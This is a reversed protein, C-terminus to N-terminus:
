EQRGIARAAIARLWMRRILASGPYITRWYAAFRRRADDSSAWVRTTTTVLSGGRGDPRVLFNMTALAFGAPWPQTYRDATLEGRTGPPAVVVTGVVMETPARDHLRVFGGRVAVDLLPEAEGPQLIGPPLSRGGRRISTLRGFFRIEDARVQRIADYVREAPAAIALEHTESFQWAPAFRDLQTLPTAVRSEAAPLFLAVAGSLAGAAVIALARWRTPVGLRPIPRVTLALGAVAIVLSTWLLASEWM